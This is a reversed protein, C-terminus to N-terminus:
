QSKNMNIKSIAFRIMRGTAMEKKLSSKLVRQITNLEIESVTNRNSRMMLKLVPLSGGLGIEENKREEGEKM